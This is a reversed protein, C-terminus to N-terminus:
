ANGDSPLEVVLDNPNLKLIGNAPLYSESLEEDEQNYYNDKM